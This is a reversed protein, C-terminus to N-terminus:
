LSFAAAAARKGSAGDEAGATPVLVVSDTVAQDTNNSKRFVREIMCFDHDCAWNIIGHAQIVCGRLHCVASTYFHRPLERNISNRGSGFWIFYRAPGGSFFFM